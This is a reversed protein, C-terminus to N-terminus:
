ALRIPMVMRVDGPRRPDRIALPALPGDLGLVLQGADVPLAELLFDRNM